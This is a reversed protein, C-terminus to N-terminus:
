DSRKNADDTETNYNKMLISLDQLNIRGDSNLDADANYRSDGEVSNFHNSLISVDLLNVFGDKNIDGVKNPNGVTFAYQIESYRPNDTANVLINGKNDILRVYSGPTQMGEVIDTLTFIYNGDPLCINQSIFQGAKFNEYPINEYVVELTDAKVIDWSIQGMSVDNVVDVKYPANTPVVVDITDSISTPNDNISVIEVTIQQSTQLSLHKIGITNWNYDGAPAIAGYWEFRSIAGNINCQFEIKNIRNSGTNTVHVELLTKSTNCIIKRPSVIQIQATTVMMSRNDLATSTIFENRSNEYVMTGREVQGATFMNKFKENTYDMYNEVQQTGGCAPMNGNSNQITPPTDCVRDGQMACNVETCSNGQFTHFLGIAHGFEHTGTRNLSTYSKLNFNAGMQHSWNKPRVGTANYLQVTGDVISTTPFYAFGQVGSGGNNGGIESVIWFNYCHQNNQRSWSKVVSESEGKGNYYIGDNAYAQSLEAGNKRFIGTTFNGADDKSILEFRFPTSVGNGDGNSGPQKSYDENLGTVFSYIQADSINTGTGIPEGKHIVHVAIPVVYITEEASKKVRSKAGKIKAELAFYEDESAIFTACTTLPLQTLPEKKSSKSFLNKIWNLFRKLLKM